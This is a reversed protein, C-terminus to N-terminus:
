NGSQSEDQDVLAAADEGDGEADSSSAVEQGLLRSVHQMLSDRAVKGPLKGNTGGVSYMRNLKRRVSIGEQDEFQNDLVERVQAFGLAVIGDMGCVLALVCDGYEDVVRQYQIQHDRQFTFGWPGKRNRCFKIYLPVKGNLLYYGQVGIELRSITVPTLCHDVIHTLASGYYRGYDPLM